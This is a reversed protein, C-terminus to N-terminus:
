GLLINKIEEVIYLYRRLRDDSVEYEDYAIFVLYLLKVNKYEKNISCSFQLQPIGM